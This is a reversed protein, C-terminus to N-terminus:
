QVTNKIIDLHAFGNKKDPELYASESWENWANFFLYPAKAELSKKYLAEFFARKEDTTTETFVNARKGYRATNDWEFFASEFIQLPYQPYDNQYANALIINWVNQTSHFTVGKFKIRWEVLKTQWSQPLKRFLNGFKYVGSKSTNKSSTNAERPQFKMMAQYSALFSPNAFDYGKTAVFYIGPLGNEQAWENWCAFMEAAQNVIEPVYIVFMPKGDMKLARSDQFFPLLYDFHKRWLAKDPLHQQKQLVENNGKWQRTWSPNAWSLCFPMDLQKNQLFQELPKQLILKGDFWYHYFMFGGVGYAKAMEIQKALTEVHCPNYYDGDMPVRPQHHNQYLPKAEKVLQWDTFGRGWWEDNEPIDHFQPFYIAILKTKNM